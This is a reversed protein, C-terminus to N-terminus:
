YCGQDVSQISFSPLDGEHSYSSQRKVVDADSEMFPIYWTRSADEAKGGLLGHRM